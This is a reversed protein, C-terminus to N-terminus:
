SRLMELKIGDREFFATLRKAADRTLGVVWVKDNKLQYQFKDDFTQPTPAPGDTHQLTKAKRPNHIKAREAQEVAAKEGQELIRKGSKANVVRRVPGGGVAHGAWQQFVNNKWHITLTEPGRTCSLYEVGDEVRSSVIWDNAAAINAFEAAKPGLNSVDPKPPLQGPRPPLPTRQDHKAKRRAAAGRNAGKPVVQTM